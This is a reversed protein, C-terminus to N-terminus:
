KIPDSPGIEGYDDAKVFRPGASETQIPLMTPPGPDFTFAQLAPINTIVEGTWMEAVSTSSPPQGALGRCLEAMLRYGEDHETSRTHLLTGNLPHFFHQPRNALAEFKEALANWDTM